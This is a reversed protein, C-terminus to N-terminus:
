ENKGFLGLPYAGATLLEDLVTLGSQTPVGGQQTRQAVVCLVTCVLAPDGILTRAACILSPTWQLRASVQHSVPLSSLCTFWVPEM